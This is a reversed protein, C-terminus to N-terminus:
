DGIIGVIPGGLRTGAASGLFPAGGFDFVGGDAATLRYAPNAGNNGPADLAVSIGTIPSNLKLAGLSGQFAANGFTFVGGDSAAMFYGQGDATNAIGVIPANLHKGGLSGFFRPGPPNPGNGGTTGFAFVGGDSAVLIYGGGGPDTAIGVIPDNLHHGGMSGFYGASGLAFVGGDAAALWLGHGSAEGVASVIPSAVHVPVNGVSSADGFNYTHGDATVLWYGQQDITPAIAVVKSGGGTKSGAFDAAGYTLVGGDSGALRYGPTSVIAGMNSHFFCFFAYTGNNPLKYTVSAVAGTGGTDPRGTVVDSLPTLGNPIVGGTAGQHGFNFPQEFTGIPCPPGNQNQSPPGDPGSATECEPNGFPVLGLVGAAPTSVTHPEQTTASGDFKVSDGKHIPLHQPLYELLEVDDATVGVHETWTRSGDPNATSTPVSAAAEAAAATANLQNLESTAESALTAAPTAPQGAPVVNITGSMHPHVTCYYTYTGTPLNPALQVAFAAGSGAFQQGSGVTKSGDYLCPPASPSQSCAPDTPDNTQGPTVIGSEGNDTDPTVEPYAARFQAETQGAAPFTVSHFGNPSGPNWQFLLTGGQPVSVGTEPFFHTYEWNKGAPVANDV